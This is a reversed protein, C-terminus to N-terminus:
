RLEPWSARASRVMSRTIKTGLKPSAAGLTQGRRGHGSRRGGALVAWIRPWTGDAQCRRLRGYCTQWPGFRGPGDRWPRGTHLTWLLGGLVQRHNRWPKGRRSNTPLLPHVRAFAEDTLEFM